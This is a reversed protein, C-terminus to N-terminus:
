PRVSSAASVTEASVTAMTASGSDIAMAMAEPTSGCRPSYAAMKPPKRTEASPPLRCWTPPGAPAKMTSTAPVTAVYPTPPSSVAVSIAPMMMSHAPYRRSPVYM